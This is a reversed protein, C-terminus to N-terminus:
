ATTPQFPSSVSEAQCNPRLALNRNESEPANLSGPRAAFGNDKILALNAV